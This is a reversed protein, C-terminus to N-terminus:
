CLIIYFILLSQLIPCYLRVTVSNSFYCLKSGLIWKERKKKYQSENGTENRRKYITFIIQYELKTVIAEGRSGGRIFGPRVTAEGTEM